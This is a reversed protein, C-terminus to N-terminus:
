GILEKIKGSANMGDVWEKPLSDIGLHASLIMAILVGRSSSDGGAKANQVLATKLDNEYRTIFLIAGPLGDDIGCAPGFEYVAKTDDEKNDLGKQLLAHIPALNNDQLRNQVAKTPTNGDLVDFLIDLITNVTLTTQPLNNTMIAQTLAYERLLERNDFFAYVLSAIRSCASLDPILTNGCPIIGKKYNELSERAAGDFYGTYSSIFESWAKSLTEEFNNQDYSATTVFELLFVCLDGYHTFDGAKKNAHFMSLPAHYKEIDQIENAIKEPDYVWHGGLSLADAVFSALLIEEKKNM